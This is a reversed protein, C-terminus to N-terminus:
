MGPARNQLKLEEPTPWAYAYTGMFDSFVIVDFHEDKEDNYGRYHGVPSTRYGPIINGGEFPADQSVLDAHEEIFMALPQGAPLQLCSVREIPFGDLLNDMYSGFLARIQEVMFQPHERIEFWRGDHHDSYLDKLGLSEYTPANKSNIKAMLDMFSLGDRLDSSVIDFMGVNYKDEVKDSDRLQQATMGIDMIHMEAGAVGHCAAYQDNLTQMFSCLSKGDDTVRIASKQFEELPMPRSGGEIHVVKENFDISYRIADNRFPDRVAWMGIGEENDPIICIANNLQENSYQVTDGEVYSGEWDGNNKQRLVVLDSFVFKSCGAFNM